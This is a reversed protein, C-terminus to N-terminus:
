NVRQRKRSIINSTTVEVEAAVKVEAEADGHGLVQKVVKTAKELLEKAKAAWKEKTKAQKETQSAHLQGAIEKHREEHEAANIIHLPAWVSRPLAEWLLHPNHLSHLNIIHLELDKHEIHSSMINTEAREQIVQHLGSDMCGANICDHQVNFSFM